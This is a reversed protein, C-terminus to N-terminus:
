CCLTKLLKPVKELLCRVDKAFIASKVLTM